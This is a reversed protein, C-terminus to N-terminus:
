IALTAEATTQAVPTSVGPATTVLHNSQARAV